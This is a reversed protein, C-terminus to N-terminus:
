PMLKFAVDPGIYRAWFASTISPEITRPPSAKPIQANFNPVLTYPAVDQARM